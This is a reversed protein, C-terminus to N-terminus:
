CLIEVEMGLLERNVDLIDKVAALFEETQEKARGTFQEANMIQEAEEATLNFAADNLIRGILDNEGGQLKIKEAAEVSHIRIREHLGQRDGGKKVCYML